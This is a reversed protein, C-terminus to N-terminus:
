CIRHGHWRRRTHIILEFSVKGVCGDERRWMDGGGPTGGLGM